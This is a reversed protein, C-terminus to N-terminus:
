RQFLLPSSFIVYHPVECNMNRMYCQLILLYLLNNPSASCIPSILFAYLIKALFGLPLLGNPVGICLSAEIMEM